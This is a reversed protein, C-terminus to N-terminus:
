ASTLADRVLDNIKQHILKDSCSNDVSIGHLYGHSISIEVSLGSTIQNLEEGIKILAPPEAYNIEGSIAPCRRMKKILNSAKSFFDYIQIAAAM